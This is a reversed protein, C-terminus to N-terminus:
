INDQDHTGSTDNERLTQLHAGHQGQIASQVNDEQTDQLNLLQEFRNTVALHSVNNEEENRLPSTKKRYKIKSTKWKNNASENSHVIGSIDSVESPPNVERDYLPLYKESDSKLLEIILKTSEVEELASRLKEELVICHLCKSVSLNGKRQDVIGSSIEDINVAAAMNGIIHTVNM